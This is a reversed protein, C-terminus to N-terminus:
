KNGCTWPMVEYKVEGNAAPMKRVRGEKESKRQTEQKARNQQSNVLDFEKNVLSLSINMWLMWFPMGCWSKRLFRSQFSYPLFHYFLIHSPKKEDLVYACVHVHAYIYIYICVFSDFVDDLFVKLHCLFYLSTTILMHSDSILYSPTFWVTFTHLVCHEYYVAKQLKRTWHPQRNHNKGLCWIVSFLIKLLKENLVPSLISHKHTTTSMGMGQLVAPVLPDAPAMSSGGSWYVIM